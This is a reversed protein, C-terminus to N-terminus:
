LKYIKVVRVKLYFSSVCVLCVCSYEVELKLSRAGNKLLNFTERKEFMRQSFLQSGIIM